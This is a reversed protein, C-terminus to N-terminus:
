VRILNMGNCHLPIRVVGIVAAAWAVLISKASVSWHNEAKEVLDCATVPVGYEYSPTPIASQSGRRENTLSIANQRLGLANIVPM